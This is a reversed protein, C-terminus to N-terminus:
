CQRWKVEIEAKTFTKGSRIGCIKWDHNLFSELLEPSYKERVLQYAGNQKKGTGYLIGTLFLRRILSVGLLKQSEKGSVGTPIHIKDDDSDIEVSPFGDDALSKLFNVIRCIRFLTMASLRDCDPTEVPYFSSRSCLTSEPVKGSDQLRDFVLTGPVLYFLSPGILCPLGALLLIANLIESATEGPLGIIIYATVSLGISHASNVIEIFKKTGFPRKLNTQMTEGPTVLSVNLSSFGAHKMKKLIEADLNSATIGNMAQISLHFDPFREIVGDLFETLWRRNGGFHDDEFDFSRIRTAIKEGMEDLVNSTSRIRYRDGMTLHISCFECRYPCGRSAIIMAHRKGNIFYEPTGPTQADAFPLANLYAIWEVPNRVIESGNQWVLNPVSDFNPSNKELEDLLRKTAIEGEGFIVFDAGIQLYNEPRVSADAGGIIIIASPKRERILQILQFVTESYTTFMASILFIDFESPIRRAIEEDSLGFRYFRKYLSFPSADDPHYFLSVDKLANPLFVPRPKANRLDILTPHFERIAAAISLLGLPYNRIPTGYFDEIPPQILCVIKDM